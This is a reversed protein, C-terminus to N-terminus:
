RFHDWGAPTLEKKINGAYLIQKKSGNDMRGILTIPFDFPFSKLIGINQNPITFLLEYEEGSKLAIDMSDKGTQEAWKGAGPHIPIRSSELTCGLGSAKCIHGIDSSLGDSIDIMATVGAKQALWIGAETRAAPNLFKKIADSFPNFQKGSQLIKLGTYSGGLNGTVGIWDAAKAGGRAAMLKEKVKGLVTVNCFAIDKSSTTDGGIIYVGHREACNRLGKWLADVDKITWSQPFAFSVLAHLATGGMAAIDSIGATMARYGASELPMYDRDFHVGEVVSDTSVLTLMGKQPNLAAADDGIGIKVSDPWAGLETKIRDIIGFEGFDKLPM